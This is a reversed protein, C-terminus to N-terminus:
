RRAPFTNRGGAGCPSTPLLNCSQFPMCSRFLHNLTYSIKDWLCSSRLKFGWCAPLFSPMTRQALFGQALPYLPLYIEWVSNAAWGIWSFPHAEPETLSVIKLCYFSSVRLRARAEAHTCMPVPVQVSMHARVCVCMYLSCVSIFLM